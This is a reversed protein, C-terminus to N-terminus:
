NKLDAVVNESWICLKGFNEVHPFNLPIFDEHKVYINPISSYETFILHIDLIKGKYLIDTPISWGCAVSINKAKKYVDIERRTLKRASFSSLYSDIKEQSFYQDLM